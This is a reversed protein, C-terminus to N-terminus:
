CANIPIALLRGPEGCTVFENHYRGEDDFWEVLISEEQTNDRFWDKLNDALEFWHRDPLGTLVVSYQYSVENYVKGEPSKWVGKQEQRSFGGFADALRGEFVSQNRFALGFACNIIVKKM